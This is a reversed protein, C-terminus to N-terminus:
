VSPSWGTFTYGTRTFTPINSAPLTAGQESYIQVAAPSGSYNYSFTLTKNLSSTNLSISGSPYTMTWTGGGSDFSETSAIQQWASGDWYDLATWDVEWRDGGSSTFTISSIPKAPMKPSLDITDTNGAEFYNPSSEGPITNSQASTSDTYNITVYLSNATGTGECDQGATKVRFRYSGMQGVAQTVAHAGLRGFGMALSAMVVAFAMFISLPRRIRYKTKTM